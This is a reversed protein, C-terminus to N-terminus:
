TLLSESDFRKARTKRKEQIRPSIQSQVESLHEKLPKALITSAINGRLRCSTELGWFGYPSASCVDNLIRACRTQAILVEDNECEPNSALFRLHDEEYPTWGM